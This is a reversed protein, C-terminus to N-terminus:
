DDAVSDLGGLEELDYTFDFVMQIPRDASRNENFSDVDTKLQYCDSVIQNRRQKFATEMYSRSATRIDAWLVLQEGEQDIRAAHKARVKRGQPDTIYEERMARSLLEACQNVITSPQPRWYGNEIAWYAIARATTPWKGGEERYVNVIRQMQETYSRAM